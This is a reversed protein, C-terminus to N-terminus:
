GIINYKIYLWLIIALGLSIIKANFNKKITRMTFINKIGDVFSKKSDAKVYYNHLEDKLSKIGVNWRIRGDEVISINGTEESVVIVVSDSVETIGLAARHRTGITNPLDQKTLPLFCAAAEILDERIIVAGDHLPTNPMFITELLEWSIESRVLVGTETYNKLGIEKELVVIAGVKKLSFDRVARVINDFAEAKIRMSSFRGSGMEALARRIEPQFVVVAVILSVAWFARLLWEMVTFNLFGAIVTFIFVFILGKFMQVTRTHNILLFGQYLVYAIIVVDFLNIINSLFINHFYDFM